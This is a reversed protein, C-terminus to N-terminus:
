LTTEPHATVLAHKLQLAAGQTTAIPLWYFQRVAPIDGIAPIYMGNGCDVEHIADAMVFQLLLEKPRQHAIDWLVREVREFAVAPGALVHVQLNALMQWDMRDLPMDDHVYLPTGVLQGGILSVVVPGNPALGQRRTELLARGNVPYWPRATM